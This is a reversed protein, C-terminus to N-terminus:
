YAGPCQRGPILAKKRPASLWLLLTHIVFVYWSLLKPCAKEWLPWEAGLSCSARSQLLSQLPIDLPYLSVERPYALWWCSFCMIDCEWFAWPLWSWSCLNYEWVSSEDWCMWELAGLFATSTWSCGSINIFVKVIWHCYPICILHDIATDLSWDKRYDNRGQCYVALNITCFSCM